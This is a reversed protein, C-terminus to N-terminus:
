QENPLYVCFAQFRAPNVCPFPTWSWSGSSFQKAWGDTPIKYSLWSNLGSNWVESSYKMFLCMKGRRKAQLHHLSWWGWRSKLGSYIPLWPWCIFVPSISFLQMISRKLKKMCWSSLCSLPVHVNYLFMSKAQLGVEREPQNLQRQCNVPVFPFISKSIQRLM